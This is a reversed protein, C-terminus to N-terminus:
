VRVGLEALIIRMRAEAAAHLNFYGGIGDFAPLKPTNIEVQAIGVSGIQTNGPVLPGLRDRAMAIASLEVIADKFAEAQAQFQPAHERLAIELQRVRVRLGEQRLLELERRKESIRAQLEAMAHNAIDTDKELAVIKAERQAIDADLAKLDQERGDIFAAAGVKLRKAKVDALQQKELRLPGLVTREINAIRLQIEDMENRLQAERLQHQELGSEKATSPPVVTKGSAGLINKATALLGM